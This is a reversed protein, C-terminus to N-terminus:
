SLFMNFARDMLELLMDMVDPIYGVVHDNSGNLQSNEIQLAEGSCKIAIFLRGERWLEAKGINQLTYKGGGGVEMASEM